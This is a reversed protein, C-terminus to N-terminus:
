CHGGVTGVEARIWDPLQAMDFSLNERNVKIIFEIEGRALDIEKSIEEISRGEYAMLAARVFKVTNQREIIEEHPIKDQFIKAVELSKNMSLEINHVMQDAQELKLAIDRIKNEMLATLQSSQTETRDSLDELVAIKSQLLQLGKSLRPDDKAPRSLRIWTIVFASFFIINLATQVIIWFSLFNRRSLVYAWIMKM